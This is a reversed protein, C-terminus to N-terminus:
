REREAQEQMYDRITALQIILLDLDRVGHVEALLELGSWDIQGGM